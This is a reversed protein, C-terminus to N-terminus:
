INEVKMVQFDATPGRLKVSPDLIKSLINNNNLSVRCHEKVTAVAGHQSPVEHERDAQATRGQGHQRTCQSGHNCGCGGLPGSGGGVGVGGGSGGLARANPTPRYNYYSAGGRLLRIIFM